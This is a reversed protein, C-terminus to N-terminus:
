SASTWFSIKHPFGGIKTASWEETKSLWGSQELAGDHVANAYVIRLPRDTRRTEALRELFRDVIPREFPHYLYVVTADSYDFEEARAHQCDVEARRGKVRRANEQASQILMANFDIGIVKKARTRSACCVM